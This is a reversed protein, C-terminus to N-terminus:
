GQAQCGQRRLCGQAELCELSGQPLPPQGPHHILMDVAHQLAGPLHHPGWHGPLLGAVAHM